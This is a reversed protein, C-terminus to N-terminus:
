LVVDYIRRSFPGLIEIVGSDVYPSLAEELTAQESFLDLQPDFYFDQLVRVVIDNVVILEGKIYDHRIDKLTDTLTFTKPKM